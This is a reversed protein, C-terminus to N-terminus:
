RTSYLYKFMLVHLTPFLDQDQQLGVADDPYSDGRQTYYEAVLSHHNDSGSQFGYRIGLTIADFEALRMDASIFKPLGDGTPLSHRFFDAADQHYLRIHPQLYSKGSLRLRYRAELAQAEVGWDDDTYRLSLDLLGSSLEYKYALYISRMDRTDPRNEFRYELTGGLNSVNQDDIVSFLKYPDTLYGSFYSQTIRWQLISRRDIVQTVGFGIEGLSRTDSAERRNQQTGAPNMTSLPVPINGVPHVRNYEGYFGLDLRTNRQNFDWQYGNGAGFSLYDFEMSLRGSFSVASDPSYQNKYEAAVALRTDMHTDDVPLENADVTYSGHGSSQTFTQVVNSASAGNPTAGTLTDIELGLVIEDGDDFERSANALFELGTNRDQEIYNLLGLDLEWTEAAIAQATSLGLLACTAHSLSRSISKKM